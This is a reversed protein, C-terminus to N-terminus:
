ISFFLHVQIKTGDPSKVQIEFNTRGYNLEVTLNAGNLKIQEKGNCVLKIECKPDNVDANVVVSTVSYPAIGDYEFLDKGFAQEVTVLPISLSSLFADSASLRQCNLTYLKITGDESSVEIIIKNLGEKINCKNRDKEKYKIFYSASTDSTTAEIEVSDVSSPVTLSYDTVIKQFAPNIIFQKVSLKSLNADDM